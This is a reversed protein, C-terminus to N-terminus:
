NYNERRKTCDRWSYCFSTADILCIVHM